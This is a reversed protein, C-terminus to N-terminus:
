IETYYHLGKDYVAKQRSLYLYENLNTYLEAITTKRKTAHVEKTQHRGAAIESTLQELMESLYQMGFQGTQEVAGELEELTSDHVTDFGSQYLDGLLEMVGSLLEEIAEYKSQNRDM